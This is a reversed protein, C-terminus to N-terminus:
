QHSNLQNKIVSVQRDCSFPLAGAPYLISMEHPYLSCSSSSSSRNVLNSQSAIEKIQFIILPPPSPARSFF